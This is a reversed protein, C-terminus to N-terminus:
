RHGGNKVIPELGRGYLPNNKCNYIIALLYKTLKIAANQVYSYITSFRQLNACAFHFDQSYLGNYPTDYPTSNGKRKRELQRECKLHQLLAKLFLYLMIKRKLIFVSM